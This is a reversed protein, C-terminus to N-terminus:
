ILVNSEDNDYACKAGTTLGIWTTGDTVTTITDGNRYKTEALNDAVWEQTGICITRYVKGDNGIYIGTEGDSLITSDKIPRFTNGESRLSSAGTIFDDTNFNILAAGMIDGGFNTTTMFQTNSNLAVFVGDISRRSGCGRGNFGSENTAGINPSNWYVTGTEKLKGGAVANGGLFTSLTEYESVSPAHWGASTINRVDEIAHYNYLNGYKVAVIPAVSETEGTHMRLLKFQGKNNENNTQVELIWGWKDSAIKIVGYPNAQIAAITDENVPAEFIYAEPIWYGPTMNNVLLDASEAKPESETTLQTVLKNNKDTKMFQIEDGLALRMSRVRNDHREFNRRPTYNLNYSSGPDIGGSVLSFDEDTKVTFVFSGGRKVDFIFIDNDGNVDETPDDEYPKERLKNVGQTDARYPSSIDLTSKVSKIPIAWLSETNFEKLGQVVEYDFKGYGGKVQNAYWDPLVDKQIKAETVVDSLDLIQNTIYPRSDTAPFNPNDSIDFFYSEKELRVKDIGDFVEFGMGINQMANTAAFLDSLKFNLGILNPDFGRIWRGVTITTLSGDGDESYSEPASDTRGLLDSVLCHIQGSLLSITRSFAEYIYFMPNNIEPLASGISKFISVSSASYTLTATSGDLYGEFYLSDLAGLGIAEDVTFTHEINDTGSVLYSEVTSIAGGSTKIRLYIEVNYVGTGAVIVKLDGKINGSFSDAPVFFKVISDFEQDNVESSGYENFFNTM